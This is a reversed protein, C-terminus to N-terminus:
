IVKLVNVCNNKGLHKPHSHEYKKWKHGIKTKVYEFSHEMTMHLYFKQFDYLHLFERTNFDDSYELHDDTITKFFETLQRKIVM